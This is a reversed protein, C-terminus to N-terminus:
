TKKKHSALWRFFDGCSCGLSRLLFWDGAAAIKVLRGGIRAPMALWLLRRRHNWTFKFASLDAHYSATRRPDREVRAALRQMSEGGRHYVLSARCWGISLGQERARCAYDLEEFYLFYEENLLGITDLAQRRIFMASGDVYDLAPETSWSQVAARELGAGVPHYTTLWYSYRCGGASRVRSPHALECITSAWIAVEPREEACSLLRELADPELRTDNNLLWFFDPRLARLAYRIGTNMGGAYGLNRGNQLLTPHVRCGADGPAAAAHADTWEAIRVVSDDESGNDCIVLDVRVQPPLDLGLVSEICALTDSWGNWNLVVVAVAKM